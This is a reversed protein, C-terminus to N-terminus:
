VGGFFVALFDNKSLTFDPNPIYVNGFGGPFLVLYNVSGISYASCPGSM